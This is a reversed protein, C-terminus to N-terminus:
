RHAWRTLTGRADEFIREIRQLSASYVTRSGRMQKSILGAAALVRVHESVAPQSVRLARSIEMVGSPTTMVHILIHVRTPEALIRARDAVYAADRVRRVPDLASAPVGILLRDGIDSVIGGSMCFYIPVLVFRRRRRLLDRSNLPHRPPMLKIVDSATRVSALRRNWEATAKVAVARGRREWARGAIQWVEALIDRYLRRIQIDSRLLDLRRRIYRRHSAPESLLDHRRSPDKPRTSLWALLQRADDELRNASCAAVLLEPCGGVSDDWLSAFRERVSPRLAEIGPLLSRELENLAPEAYRATQVLLDLLWALESAVSPTVRECELPSRAPM